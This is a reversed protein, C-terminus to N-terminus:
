QLQTCVQQQKLIADQLIFPSATVLRSLLQISSYRIYFDGYIPNDSGLLELMLQLSSPDHVIASCTLNHPPSPAHGHTDTAELAGGCATLLSELAGQVALM